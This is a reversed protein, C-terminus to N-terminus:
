HSNIKKKKMTRNLLWTKMEEQREGIHSHLVHWSHNHKEYSDWTKPALPKSAIVAPIEDFTSNPEFHYDEVNCM